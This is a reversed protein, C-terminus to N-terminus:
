LYLFHDIMWADNSSFGPNGRHSPRQNRDEAREGEGAKQGAGARERDGSRYELAGGRRSAPSERCELRSRQVVVSRYGEHGVDAACSRILADEQDILAGDGCCEKLTRGDWPAPRERREVGDGQVVAPDDGEHRVDAAPGRP